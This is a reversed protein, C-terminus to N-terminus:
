LNMTLAKSKNANYKKGQLIKTRNSKKLLTKLAIIADKQPDQQGILMM